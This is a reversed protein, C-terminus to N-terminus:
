LTTHGCHFFSVYTMYPVALRFVGPQTMLAESAGPNGRTLMHLAPISNRQQSCQQFRTIPHANFAVILLLSLHQSPSQSTKVGCLYM